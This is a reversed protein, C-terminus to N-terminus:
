AIPAPERENLKSPLKRRFSAEPGHLPPKLFGARGWVQMMKALSWQSSGRVEGVALKSHDTTNFEVAILVCNGPAYGSSNNLRELSMVWDTHSRKYQLPVGSYFCRGGQGLLLDLVHEYDIDCQHGRQRSSLRANRVLTKSRARLGQMLCGQLARTSADRCRALGVDEELLRLNVKLDFARDVIGIKRVCWQATGDVSEPKVGPHRSYDASNFEAAVLVCNEVSYGSCNDLRELSMRWNSNPHAIEMPVGSYACRGEQYLLMDLIDEKKLNCQFGKLKSRHNAAGALVSCSGRLTNQYKRIMASHCSRCRATTPMCMDPSLYQGCVGCPMDGVDNPRRQLGRPTGPPVQRAESVLHELQEIYHGPPATEALEVKDPWERSLLLSAWQVACHRKQVAKWLSRSQHLISGLQCRMACLDSPTLLTAFLKKLRGEPVEPGGHGGCQM